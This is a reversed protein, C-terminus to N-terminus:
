GCADLVEELVGSIFETIEREWVSEIVVWEEGDETVQIIINNAYTDLVGRVIRKAVSELNSAV